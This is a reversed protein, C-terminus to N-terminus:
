RTQLRTSKVTWQSHLPSNTTLGMYPKTHSGAEQKTALHYRLTRYSYTDTCYGTVPRVLTHQPCSKSILSIM